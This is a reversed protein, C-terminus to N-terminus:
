QGITINLTGIGGDYYKTIGVGLGEGGRDKM